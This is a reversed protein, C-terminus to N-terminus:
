AAGGYWRAVSMSKGSDIVIYSTLQASVGHYVVDVTVLFAEPFVDVLQRAEQSITMDDFTAQKWFETVSKYGGAPRENILLAADHVSLEAGLLSTLLPADKTQLGNLHLVAAGTHPRTCIYPMIRERVDATYGKVFALEEKSVMLSNAARYPVPLLSYDYDEAGHSSPRTDSDLWDTLTATLHQAQLGGIGLAVLLAEYRERAPKLSSEPDPIGGLSNINFCNSEDQLRGTIAGGEIAFNITRQGGLRAFERSLLKSDVLQEAMIQAMVEGGLAYQRAQALVDARATRQISFDLREFAVVASASMVSVVLMVTMLAAGREDMLSQMMRKAFSRM